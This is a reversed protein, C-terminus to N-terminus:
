RHTTSSHSHARAFKPLPSHFQNSCYHCIGSKLTGLLNKQSFDGRGLNGRVLKESDKKKHVRPLWGGGGGRKAREVEGASPGWGLGVGRGRAIGEAITLPSPHCTSGCFQVGELNNM